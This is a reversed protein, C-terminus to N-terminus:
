RWPAYIELASRPEEGTFAPKVHGKTASSAGYALFSAVCLFIWANQRLFLLYKTM